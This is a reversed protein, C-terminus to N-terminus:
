ASYNSVDSLYYLITTISSILPVMDTKIHRFRTVFDCNLWLLDKKAVGLNIRFKEYICSKFERDSNRTRWVSSYSMGIMSCFKIYFYKLTLKKLKVVGKSFFSVIIKKCLYQIKKIIYFRVKFNLFNKLNRRKFFSDIL